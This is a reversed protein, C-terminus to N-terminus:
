RVGTTVGGPPAGTELDRGTRQVSVMPTRSPLQAAELEAGRSDVLQTAATALGVVLWFLTVSHHFDLSFFYHDFIGSVVGGIIAAHLGYFFAELEPASRVADRRKWFRWLVTGVVLLFALLGVLGMQAAIIFYLSAVAVYIDIDPAGSFGVGLLPYRQILILTDKYEGMRMQTSLDQRLFGEIFHDILGQSWPSLLVLIGLLAMWPLLKRYRLVSIVMIGVGAGLIASRSVTLVLGVGLVGALLVAVGRGLFPRKAVLQPAVMVLGFSLLSGLVNPHVATSTARKMLSPDDRIYWLVGSGTPYGFRGLASLARITLTEPLLYLVVGVLSAVSAGLVLWRVIRRLRGAERVSNVVLFFVGISLLIEAFHRILYSTLAGHSLGAIFATIALLVFALIPAGVPTAVIRQEEGLVYPLLWVGFLGLLALDLFTPTFGLSFPLSAFPLLTIVAIVGLYAIELDALIWLVYVVGVALIVVPLPGIEGILWGIGVSVGVLLLIAATLLLWRRRNFLIRRM